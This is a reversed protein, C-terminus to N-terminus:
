GAIEEGWNEHLRENDSRPLWARIHRTELEVNKKEREMNGVITSVNEGKGGGREREWVNLRSKVRVMLLKLRPSRM